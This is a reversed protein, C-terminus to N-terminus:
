VSQKKSQYLSEYLAIYDMYRKNKDFHDEARKRCNESYFAKGKGKMDDIARVVQSIDHNDVVYGTQPTILEPQATNAYVIGPTGCAFGEVVSLGFSEAESLSTVVDAANYLRVLEEISDTRKIKVISSPLKDATADDVGVLVLVCDKELRDALSRYDDLGKRSSWASAVALIMFRGALGYRERVTAFESRPLVRFLSLDVGNHITRAPIGELFSHSVDKTLWDSVGVITMPGAHCFSAKKRAYNRRSCDLLVSKPYDSKLPCEACGSRWKECAAPAYHSCHGTFSWCDHLTWVVPIAADKLYRFLLPYNIYYGHLNHLHILDPGIAKLKKILKRTAMRSALGDNDFLRAELLAIAQSFRSGVRVLASACPNSYRGYVIYPDCVHEKALDNIQSAIRGTSGWNACSNIQVLTRM